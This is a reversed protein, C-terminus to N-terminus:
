AVWLAGPATVGSWRHDLWSSARTGNAREFVSFVDHLAADGGLIAVTEGVVWAAYNIGSEGDEVTKIRSRIPKSLLESVHVVRLSDDRKEARLHMARRFLKGLREAIAKAHEPELSM